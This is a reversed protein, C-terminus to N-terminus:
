RILMSELERRSLEEFNQKFITQTAINKTKHKKIEARVESVIQVAEFKLNLPIQKKYITGNKLHVLLKCIKHKILVTNITILILLLLIIKTTDLFLLTFLFFSISFCIFLFCNFSSLKYFKIHINDLESFEIERKISKKYTLFIKKKSLVVPGLKTNLIM